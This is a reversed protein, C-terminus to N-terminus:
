RAGGLNAFYELPDTDGWAAVAKAMQRRQADALAENRFAREDRSLAAAVYGLFRKADEADSQAAAKYLAPIVAIGYQKELRRLRNWDGPQAQLGEFADEAAMTVVTQRIAHSGTLMEDRKTAYRYASAYIGRRDEHLGSSNRIEESIAHRLWAKVESATADEPPEVNPDFDAPPAAPAPSAKAVVVDVGVDVEVDVPGTEPAPQGTEPAVRDSPPRLKDFDEVRNGSIIDQWDAPWWPPAPLKPKNYHRPRQWKAFTPIVFYQQGDVEYRVILGAREIAELDDRLGPHTEFPDLEGEIRRILYEGLGYDDVYCWLGAFTARATWPLQAARRDSWYEPHIGRIKM